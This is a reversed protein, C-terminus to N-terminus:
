RMKRHQFSLKRNKEFFQSKQPPPAGKVDSPRLTHVSTPISYNMQKTPVPCPFADRPKGYLYDPQSFLEFSWEAYDELFQEDRSLEEIYAIYEPVNFSYINAIVLVFVALCIYLCKM